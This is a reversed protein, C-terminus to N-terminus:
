KRKRFKKERAKAKADKDLKKKAERLVARAVRAHVAQPNKNDRTNVNVLCERAEWDAAFSNISDWERAKARDYVLECLLGQYGIVKKGVRFEVVHRKSWGTGEGRITFCFPTGPQPKGGKCRFRQSNEFTLRRGLEIKM